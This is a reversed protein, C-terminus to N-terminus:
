TIAFFIQVAWFLTSMDPFRTSQFDPDANFELLKEAMQLDKAAVSMVTAAAAGAGVVGESCVLHVACWCTAGSRATASRAVFGASAADILYVM